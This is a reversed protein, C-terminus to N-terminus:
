LGRRPAQWPRRMLIIYISNIYHINFPVSLGAEKQRILVADGNKGIRATGLHAIVHLVDVAVRYRDAVIMEIVVVHGAGRALGDYDGLGALILDLAYLDDAEGGEVILAIARLAAAVHHEEILHLAHAYEVRAIDAVLEGALLDGLYTKDVHQEHGDAACVREIIELRALECIREAGGHDYRHM